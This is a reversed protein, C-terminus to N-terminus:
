GHEVARLSKAWLIRCEDLISLKEVFVVMGHTCCAANLIFNYGLILGPAHRYFAFCNCSLFKKSLNYLQVLTFPLSVPHFQQVYNYFCLFLGTCSIIAHIIILLVWAGSYVARYQQKM